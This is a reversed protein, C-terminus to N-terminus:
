CQWDCENDPIASYNLVGVIFRISTHKMKKLDGYIRKAIELHGASQSLIFSSLKMVAAAIDLKCLTVVWQLAGILSQYKKIRDIDLEETTDLDPHDGKVLPPIVERLSEGFIRVYNDLMRSIYKTLSMLLAGDDSDRDFNSSLHYKIPGTNKLKPKFKSELINTIEKPNGSVIVIDYVYRAIYQHDLKDRMWIDDEAKSASFSLENLIKSLRECWDM